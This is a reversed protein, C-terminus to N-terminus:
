EQVIKPEVWMLWDQEWSERAEVRLIFETKKGALSSLDVEYPHLEGDYYVDMKSFLVVSGVEDVYGLAVRVGDTATAGDKFGVRATFKADPPIEIPRSCPHYFEDTYFDAFRGQIWGQSVQEPYTYLTNTRIFAAGKKSDAPTPWKLEGAGSRWSALHAKNVFDYTFTAGWTKSRCNNGENSEGVANDADACVKAIDARIETETTITSLKAPTYNYNSFSQTREQGAALSEVYNNAVELGNIYLYSRSAKADADGQNKIKYYFTTTALWVDTIVLDPKGTVAPTVTVTVASTASGGENTATLTYTTSRTPLVQEAGSPSVSGIAPQITITAANSVDWSLSVSQGSSITESSATFSNIVPQAAETSPLPPAPGEPATITICGAAPGILVVLSLILLTLYWKYKKM